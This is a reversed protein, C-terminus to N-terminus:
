EGHDAVAVTVVGPRRGNPGVFSCTVPVVVEDMVTAQVLREGAFPTGTVPMRTCILVPPVAPGHVVRAVSALVAVAYRTVPRFCRLVYQIRTTGYLASPM